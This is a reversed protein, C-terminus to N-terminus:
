RGHTWRLKNRLGRAGALATSPTACASELAGLVNVAVATRRKTHHQGPTVEQMETTLITALHVVLLPIWGRSARAPVVALGVLVAL